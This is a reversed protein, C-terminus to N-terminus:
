FPGLFQAEITQGEYKWIEKKEQIIVLMYKHNKKIM